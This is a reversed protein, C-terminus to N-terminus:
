QNSASNEHKLGWWYTVVNEKSLSGNVSFVSSGMATVSLPTKPNQQSRDAVKAKQKKRFIRFGSKNKYNNVVENSPNSTIGRAPFLEKDGALDISGLGSCNVIFQVGYALKLAQVQETLLGRISCQIM